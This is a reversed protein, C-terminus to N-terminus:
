LRVNELYKGLLKTLAPLLNEIKEGVIKGLGEERDENWVENFINQEEQNTKGIQFARVIIGNEYLNDVAKKAMASNHNGKEDTSGGDTIEFVIEMIKGQKIKEKDEESLSNEIAELPKNDCTKGITNQLSEFVKIIEIQEEGIGSESRLKKVIQAEDGFIWAESDAELKSKTQSRTFNLHTNFEKISSLLLVFCQQLIHRKEEDMSGSMDGSVRVRILEPKKVLMEKSVAKKFVRIEEFEGKEIRPWEEIAKQIDLESGDKFYGEMGREIKRSSGYIIKQWLLSLEELYPEVEAEVEHYNRLTQLDVDNKECWNKDMSEQSEKAKEGATKSEEKKEQEERDEEKKKDKQNKKAWDKIDQESIQDPNNQDYEKYDQDFPNADGVQSEGEKQEREREQPKEPNWEELDKALLKEFIPELTNKLVFNRQSSKTERGKKPKIFNEVIEKPSYGRGQFKIKQEMIDKVEDSLVAEEDEAMEERIFKYVFQLHRPLKLFDNEAFLKEKYLKKIKEGGGTGKEFNPAKRSVLNNVYIDDFINYFTHHIKYAAQEIASMTKSPDKKSTPIQRKIKEIFDSDDAGYKEEWKRLINKGTKKAKEGIYEFNKMTGEPDEALDCFHSLEHLNAWLIQEKSFDKDKFWKADLNVEGSELDIFFADSMKFSLSVDKAFTIFLKRYSDVMRQGEQKYEELERAKENESEKPVDASFPNKVNGGQEEVKEFEDFNESIKEM